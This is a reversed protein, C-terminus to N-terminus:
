FLCDHLFLFMQLPLIIEFKLLKEKPTFSIYEDPYKQKLFEEFERYITSTSFDVLINL